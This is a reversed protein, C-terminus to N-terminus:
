STYKAVDSVLISKRNQVKANRNWAKKLNVMWNQLEVKQIHLPLQERDSQHCLFSVIDPGNTYMVCHYIAM